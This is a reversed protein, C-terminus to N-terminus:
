GVLGHQVFCCVFSHLHDHEVHDQQSIINLHGGVNADIREATAQAGALTTNKQSNIQINTANLHTNDHTQSDLHNSGKGFGAEAYIYAGTQAGVSAGVGVSVGSNSNKGDGKEITKGSELLIDRASNLTLNNQTNVQTNQLHIDGETSNLNLNNGANLRNGQAQAMTNDQQSKSTKYGIGAEAKLLTAGQADKGANLAAADQAVRNATDYLQYAQAGTAMVQLAKTRDDAQSKHAKDVSDILDLIPSTVKAFVGVKLDHDDQHQQGLNKDDLVHIQKATINLDQKAVVDAVKQNYNNGATLNVNGELSGVQARQQEVGTSNNNHDGKMYGFFKETDSIQASGIGRNTKIESQNQSNQTSTINLDHAAAIALDKQSAITTGILNIDGKETYLNTTGGVSLQTARQKQTNADGLERNNYVGGPAIHDRTDINWGKQQSHADQTQTDQAVDLIIHQTAALQADKGASLQAGQSYLSGGDAIINLNGQANAETAVSQITSNYSDRNFKQNKATIVVPTFAAMGAKGIADAQSM